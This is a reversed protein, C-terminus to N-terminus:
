SEITLVGIATLIYFVTGGIPTALLIKIINWAILTGTLTGNDFAKAINLIGGIFMQWLGLYLGLMVGIIILTIGLVKKM